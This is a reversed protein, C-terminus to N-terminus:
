GECVEIDEVPIVVGRFRMRLAALLSETEKAFYEKAAEKNAELLRDAAAKV